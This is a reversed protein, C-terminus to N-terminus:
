LLRRWPIAPLASVPYGESQLDVLKDSTYPGIARAEFTYGHWNNAVIIRHMHSHEDEILAVEYRVPKGYTGEVLNIATLATVAEVIHHAIPRGQQKVEIDYLMIIRLSGGTVGM